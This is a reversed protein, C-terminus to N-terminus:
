VHGKWVLRTSLQTRKSVQHFVKVTAQAVSRSPFTGPQGSPQKPWARASEMKQARSTFMGNGKLVHRTSRKGLRDQGLKYCQFWGPNVTWGAADLSSFGPWSKPQSPRSWQSKAPARDPGIYRGPVRELCKPERRLEARASSPQLSAVRNWCSHTLRRISM